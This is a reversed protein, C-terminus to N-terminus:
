KLVFAGAGADLSDVYVAIYLLGALVDGAAAQASGNTKYAKLTALTGKRPVVTMTVSGTSDNAAVFPYFEYDVYKEILPAGANPTLTIVNTGAASCPTIRNSGVVHERMATLLQQGHRSLQGNEAEIFPASAHTRPLPTAKAAAPITVLGM